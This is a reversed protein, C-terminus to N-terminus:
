KGNQGGKPAFKAPVRVFVTTGLGPKSEMEVLGGCIAARERIGILGLGHGSKRVRTQKALDFGVGNDEVILVIEKKRSELLVNVRSAKSHKSINNLAEQAIRYLNTEIEPDLRKRKMGNAHFEAPIEFHQSWERTYNDVAAVLGLDDLVTPRLEWALFSVESDLGAGLEALREVRECLEDDESCLDKISAIKLRLATLRQGLQDHIERAIRSREDEQTTVIRRLLGVRENESKKREAIEQRLKVNSVNLEETRESVREELKERSQQLQESVRKQETLDRAIKAYGLLRGRDFLPVMVGSAFFRTGDKRMHWREDAARGKTRATSRENEPAGLAQDEPTFIIDSSQGIMENAPYGFIKEAGPNWHEVTGEGNTTIIAYDTFSEMLLRLREESRRLAAEMRRREEMDISVGVIGVLNGDADNIPSNVVHAMFESGDRRKVPFEGEW